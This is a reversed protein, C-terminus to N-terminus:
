TVGGGLLRDWAANVVFVSKSALVETDWHHCVLSIFVGLVRVMMAEEEVRGKAEPLGHLAPIGLSTPKGPPETTIFGAQLAPSMSSTLEIGLNPLDGPSLFPLWSWYEQRPFGM